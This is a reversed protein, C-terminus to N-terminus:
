DVKQYIDPLNRGWEDLDLGYGLIFDSCELGRFKIDPKIVKDPRVVLVAVDIAKPKM